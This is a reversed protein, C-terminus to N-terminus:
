YLFQCASVHILQPNPYEHFGEKYNKIRWWLECHCLNASIGQYSPTKSLVCCAIESTQYENISSGPMNKCAGWQAEDCYHSLSMSSWPLYVIISDTINWSISCVAEHLGSKHHHIIRFRRANAQHYQWVIYSLWLILIPSPKSLSM